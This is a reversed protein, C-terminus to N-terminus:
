PAAYRLLSGTKSAFRQEAGLALRRYPGTFRGRETVAELREILYDRHLHRGIEEMGARLAGCAVTADAKVPDDVASAYPSAIVAHSKLADPLRGDALTASLYLLSAPPNVRQLDDGRLWLVWPADAPERVARATLDRVDVEIGRRSLILRLEHAAARAVEDGPRLVQVVRRTGPGIDGAILTAELLVGRSLYLSHFGSEAPPAEVHPFLCPLASRRCFQHVPRWDAGGLGGVAAFVPRARAHAELQANWTEAAGHLEWVHLRWPRQKALAIDPGLRKRGPPVVPGANHEDFCARLTDVMTSRPAAEMGGDLITAFHVAGDEVGPSQALSLGRLYVALSSVEAGSLKYRPMLYDLRRGAADEGTRLARALSRETYAPRGTGAAVATGPAQPEFLSAATVPPIYSRGEFGGLGSRRHCNACAAEAGRLTVGGARAAAVPRGEASRGQLYISEGQALASAWAALLVASFAFQLATM